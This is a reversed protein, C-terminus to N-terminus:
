PLEEPESAITPTKWFKQKLSTTIEKLEKNKASHLVVYWVGIGFIASVFGQFFIGIFTRINFIKDLVNLSYFTVAGMLASALIVQFFTKRVLIWIEGFDKQFIKGLFIANFIMGVSFVLPFILMEVGQVDKVRLIAEWFSRVGASINLLKMFIFIGGTIFVLSIVNVMIPRLTKGAAYFARTFLLILSQATISVAFLGLAAATLRTDRWGFQGYGLIVRVIQARLVVLLITAPISWFIIQRMASITHDLFKKRQNSVFLRALTPFAAVSYSVGIVALPVSQLNFSLNFIAISGASLFSAIATIFIFVLQNLGLGISRPLSLKIVQWAESFNLKTTLKPAFGLKIISPIQVCVHMLAGLIVGFVIGKMGMRPSLFSIGFIIGINYFIPSLAYIFFRNFSQVVTSLLNSLGLLFPSLLLIRTFIILQSKAEQSFGPTILNSLYPITFFVIVSLFIMMLLFISFINDLFKRGKEQSISIKELFFPVLVAVSAISLSIINYVFDPIKFAAYYIDLSQGAGFTGALLRDRFLGLLGSIISSVALIMAAKHLGSFEQHFLNLIRKVM